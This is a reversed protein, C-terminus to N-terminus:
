IGALAGVGAGTAPGAAHRGQAQHNYPRRSANEEGEMEAEAAVAAGATAAGEVGAVGAAAVATTM